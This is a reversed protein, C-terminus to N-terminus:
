QNSEKERSVEFEITANFIQQAFRELAGRVDTDGIFLTINTSGGEDDEWNLEVWDTGNYQNAEVTITSSVVGHSTISTSM